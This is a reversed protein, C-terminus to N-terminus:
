VRAPTDAVITGVGIVGPLEYPGETLNGASASRADPLDTRLEDPSNVVSVNFFPRRATEGDKKMQSLKYVHPAEFPHAITACPYTTQEGSWPDQSKTEEYPNMGSTRLRLSGFSVAM